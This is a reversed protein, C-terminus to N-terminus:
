DSGGPDPCDSWDEVTFYDEPYRLANSIGGVRREDYRNILEWVIEQERTVEFVRGSETETILINGNPLHQHKGRAATYFPHDETGRYLVETARTVPDIAIIRSAQYRPRNDFISIRGDPLFDPDHQRLWPGHQFWKVRGDDPDFVIIGNTDRMSYMVDGAEFLPFAPALEASLVEVDNPHNRQDTPGLIFYIGHLDQEVILEKVSIERIVDGDESIQGIDFGLPVWFTGDDAQFISHHILRPQKWVIAGCRDMKVLSQGVDFNFVISGDPLALSGHLFANWDTIPTRDRREDINPWIETFRVPWEHVVTGDATILRAAMEPDFFGTMFTLGPQMKEPELVTVGRGRHKAPNLLRTPEIGFDNKWHMRLQRWTEVATSVTTFPFSQQMASVLGIALGVAILSFGFLLKAFADKVQPLDRRRNRAFRRAM